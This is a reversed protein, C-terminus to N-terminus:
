TADRDALWPRWLMTELVILVALVFLTGRAQGLFQATAAGILMGTVLLLWASIELFVLSTRKPRALAEGLAFLYGTVYGRGLEAGDVQRHLVSHTGVLAVLALASPLAAHDLALVISAAAIAAELALVSTMSWRAPVNDLLGTGVSVGCVFTLIVGLALGAGTANAQVLQQALHGSNGSMFSAYLNGLNAYALGSVYGQLATGISAFALDSSPAGNLYVRPRLFRPM